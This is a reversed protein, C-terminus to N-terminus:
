GSLRALHKSYALVVAAMGFCVAAALALSFLIAWMDREEHNCAPARRDRQWRRRDLEHTIASSPTVTRGIRAITWPLEVKIEIVERPQVGQSFQACDRYELKAKNQRAGGPTGEWLRRQSRIPSPVITTRDCNHEHLCLLGHHSSTGHVPGLRRLAITEDLGLVAASVYEDMDGRDLTGAQAREVLTLHDVVATLLRRVIEVHTSRAVAEDVAQRRTWRWCCIPFTKCTM